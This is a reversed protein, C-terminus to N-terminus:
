ARGLSAASLGAARPRLLYAVHIRPNRRFDEPITGRSLDQVEFGSLAAADLKFRQYNNSFLICGDPELLEGIRHLLQVHDRQVDFEREM